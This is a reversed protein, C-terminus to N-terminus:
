AATTAKAPRGRKKATPQTTQTTTSIGLMSNAEDQLRKSEALLGQAEIQMKQAQQLLNNAIANDALVGAPADKVPPIPTTDTNRMKKVIDLTSTTSDGDIEALRKVAADGQQM